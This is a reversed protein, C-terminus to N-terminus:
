RRRPARLVQLRRRALEQMADFRAKLEQSADHTLSELTELVQELTATASLTSERTAEHTEGIEAAQALSEFEAEIDAENLGLKQLADEGSGCFENGGAAGWFATDAAAIGDDSEGRVAVTLEGSPAIRRVRAFEIEKKAGFEGTDFREHSQLAEKLAARHSPYLDTIGWHAAYRGSLEAFPHREGAISILRPIRSLHLVPARLRGKPELLLDRQSARVMLEGVVMPIEGVCVRKLEEADEDLLARLLPSAEWEGEPRIRFGGRGAVLTFREVSKPKSQLTMSERRSFKAIVGWAAPSASMRREGISALGIGVTFAPAEPKDGVVRM